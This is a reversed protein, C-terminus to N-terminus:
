PDAVTKFCTLSLNSFLNEFAIKQSETKTHHSLPTPNKSAHTETNSPTSCANNITYEPAPQHFPTQSQPSAVMILSLWNNRHTSSTVEANQNNTM